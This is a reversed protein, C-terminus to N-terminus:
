RRSALLALLALASAGLLLGGNGNEEEERALIERRTTVVWCVGNWTYWWDNAPDGLPLDASSMGGYKKMPHMKLRDLENELGYAFGDSRVMAIPIGRAKAVSKIGDMHWHGMHSVLFIMLEIDGRVNSSPSKDGPSHEEIDVGQEKAMDFIRLFHRGEAGGIMMTRLRKMGLAAEAKDVEENTSIRCWDGPWDRLAVDVVGSDTALRVLRGDSKVIRGTKEGNTWETGPIPHSSM